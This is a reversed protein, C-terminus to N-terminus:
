LYYELRVFISQSASSSAEFAAFVHDAENIVDNAKDCAAHCSVKNRCLRQFCEYRLLM